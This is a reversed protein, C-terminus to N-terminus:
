QRTVTTDSDHRNRTSETDIGHRNRTVTTDSDDDVTSLRAGLSREWASDSAETERLMTTYTDRVSAMARGVTRESLGLTEAIENIQWGRLRRLLVRRCIKPLRRCLKKLEDHNAAVEEPTLGDVPTDDTLRVSKTKDRKKALVRRMQEKVKNDAITCLIKAVSDDNKGDFWDPSKFITCWVMQMFDVSDFESRMGQHLRNRIVKKLMRGYKRTIELVEDDSFDRAVDDEAALLSKSELGAAYIPRTEAAEGDPSDEAPSDEAPSAEAPSAEAPSDEAPSDEAPSDEAPSAEAPSAEAPSADPASNSDTAPPTTQPDIKRKGRVPSQASGPAPSVTSM